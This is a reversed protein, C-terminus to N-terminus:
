TAAGEFLQESRIFGNIYQYTSFAIRGEDKMWVAKWPADPVKECRGEDKVDDPEDGEVDRKIPPLSALKFIEVLKKVNPENAVDNYIKARPVDM